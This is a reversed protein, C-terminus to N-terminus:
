HRDESWPEYGPQLRRDVGGVRSGRRRSDEDRGGFMREDRSRLIFFSTVSSDRPEPQSSIAHLTFRVITVVFIILLIKSDRYKTINVKM